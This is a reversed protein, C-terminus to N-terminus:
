MISLIKEKLSFYEKSMGYLLAKLQVDEMKVKLKLEKLNKVKNIVSLIMKEKATDPNRSDKLVRSHYAAVKAAIGTFIEKYEAQCRINVSTKTETGSNRVFIIGIVAGRLTVSMNLMDPEDKFIKEEIKGNFCYKKALKKFEINILKRDMDLVKSGRQFLKKDVLYTYYTKKVGEEFPHCIEDMSVKNKLLCSLCLLGVFIGNGTYVNKGAIKVPVISHGSEEAGVVMTEGKKLGQVVWKDGVCVIRTKIGIDKEVAFNTMIDSEVTNIFVPNVRKKERMIYKVLLYSIKDGGIVHVAGEGTNNALLYARDADGDLVLGFLHKEKIMKQIVAPFSRTNKGKGYAYAEVGELLAVGGGQNINSGTPKDNVATVKLRLKRFVEKGPFVGAGNAPDFLIKFNKLLKKDPINNIISAAFFKKVKAAEDIYKGTAPERLNLNKYLFATISYDGCSDEPLVKLGNVFFKVGNQNSPNHSATLDVGAKIGAKAMYLPIAPTPIVGGYVVTLEAKKIGSFVASLFPKGPYFDRGDDGALVKDGKKLTGNLILLECFSYVTTELLSPTFQSNQSFRQIFNKDAEDPFIDVVGRIGDTGFIRARSALVLRTKDKIVGKNEKIKSIDIVCKNLKKFVPYDLIEAVTKDLEGLMNNSYWSDIFYVQRRKLELLKDSIRM